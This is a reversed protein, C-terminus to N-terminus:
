IDRLAGLDLLTGNYVPQLDLICLTMVSEM